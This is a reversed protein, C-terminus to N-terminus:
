REGRRRRIWWEGGLLLVFAPLWWVSRMVHTPVREARTSIATRLAGTLAAGDGAVVTGGQSTVWDALRDPRPAPAADAMVTYRAIADLTNGSASAGKVRLEYNGPTDPATITAEFVGREAAPWFDPPGALEVSPSPRDPASLQADRVVASVRLTEGPAALQPTVDVMLPAPSAAAVDSTVDVWLRAFSGEDHTRNRWADLAGNVVVRGAGLPSQWIAPHDSAGMTVHALPTIAGGRPVAFESAALEGSASVVKLKEVGHEDTLTAGGLLPELVRNDVQDLLLVIAGGRERAFRELARVASADLAAPAGVIVADFATLAARDTLLPASGSEVGISKSTGV